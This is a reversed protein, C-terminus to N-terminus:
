RSGMTTSCYRQLWTLCVGNTWGFGIQPTYEGGGGGHGVHTADYKEYMHGTRQWGSYVTRLWRVAIVRALEGEKAGELGEVIMDQLPAWANPWDWQEGSRSSHQNTTALGGAQLLGSEKLSGVAGRVRAADVGLDAADERQAVAWLPLYSSLSRPLPPAHGGVAGGGVAGSGSHGEGPVTEGGRRWVEESPMHRDVWRGRCAEEKRGKGHSHQQLHDDYVDYVWMDRDMVQYRGRAAALYQDAAVADHVEGHLYRLNLEFRYM